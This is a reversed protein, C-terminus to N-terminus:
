RANARDEPSAAEFSGVLAHQMAFHTAAARSSVGLKSYIHEVHSSVTKPTVVLRQAVQKNSYGRALLGLVEVERATLGAPWERRARVRHGAAKLVANVADGDLRGARAEGRLEAAAEREPRAPRHARPETMAHYVDAAALLRDAPSLSAATLGRPYGSGDLREHHRAALERSRSLAPVGALMRDTLYPHLRVRELEAATLPGSKDWISNSVGLRGLDHLLGARRLAAVEDEPLDSVRGAEAALSAVGRSHGSMHPSKMDVLDAMAELVEDLEDAGVMRGLAPEADIVAEWCSSAADLDAVLEEASEDFLDALLPDLQRGGRKRVASRAARVGHRRNHVEAFDALQVIRAALSVDEGRLRRPAGRGDWQEYTQHLATCTREDLGIRAAFRGALASHTELIRNMFRVGEVPFAAMTRVRAVGGRGSGIMRVLSFLDPEYVGHKLAIDDGFWRAQEHADAHCYVNALLGTYYVAVRDHEDVALRDAIRLAIVTQRMSHEMPEGRGLDTALSLSAVLEALRVTGREAAASPQIPM